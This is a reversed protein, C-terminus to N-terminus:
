LIGTTFCFPFGCMWACVARRVGGCGDCIGGRHGGGGWGGGCDKETFTGSPASSGPEPMGSEEEDCANPETSYGPRVDGAKTHIRYCTGNRYGCTGRQFRHCVNLHRYEDHHVQPCTYSRKCGLGGVWYKCAETM